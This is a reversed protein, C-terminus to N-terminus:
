TRREEIYNVIAQINFKKAAATGWADAIDNYYEVLGMDWMSGINHKLMMLVERWGEYQGPGMALLISKYTWYKKVTSQGFVSELESDYMYMDYSWDSGDLWQAVNFIDQDM